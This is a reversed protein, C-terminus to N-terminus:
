PPRRMVFASTPRSLRRLRSTGAPGYPNGGYGLHMAQTLTLYCKDTLPTHVLKPANGQYEYSYDFTASVMSMTVHGDGPRLYYRLQSRWTWADLAGAQVSLLQDVVSVNHILDLVLSQIKLGLLPVETEHSTYGHLKSLLEKKLGELAARGRPIAEEAQQTFLVMEAICLVQSALGELDLQPARRTELISDVLTEKMGTALQQLWGEVAESVEVPQKLPVVEGELSCMGTIAKDGPAFQVQFIGAFLKKLHSQIVAPNKAQGLIELLDDDGIFYFRPFSQRKQELFDSLAKQCRELQDLIASLTEPLNSVRLLSFVRPDDAVGQMISTFEEDVRAFRPQENPMAGRAFIPELYVWKRQIPNLQSLVRDLLALKAEYHTVTDAFTGFFHSAKLSGLLAQFDCVQTTLDKWDKILATSRGGNSYSTTSFRADQAWATVEQVAERIAVEGTARANLEKLEAQNELLARTCGLFHSLRLDGLPVKPIGLTRFLSAWHEPQFADGRVHKLLPGLQSYGDLEAVLHSAIAGPPCDAARERWSAILDDFVYTRQRFSVWDEAALAELEGMFSEFFDCSAVYSEIDAKIDALGAFNPPPLDFHSCDRALDDSAEVVEKLEAQWEKIRDILAAMEAPQSTDLKKPKLETWRAAFKQVKLDVEGVRAEMSNRLHGMQDELRDNFADVSVELEEWRSLLPASSVGERQGVTRLLKNLEELKRFSEKQAGKSSNIAQWESKAAGVEGLSQPRKSLTAVSDDIFHELSKQLNLACRRAGHVLADSLRQHQNELAAKFPALSVHVCDVKETLPLKEAERRRQKLAKFNAEYHAAETLREEILEELGEDLEGLAVWHRYKAVVGELKLFLESARDYVVRLSSLNRDPLDRFVKLVKHKGAGGDEYYGLGKFATPVGIFKKIERYYESRLEELAPRLHLKHQRFELECRLHPLDLHLGELGLQYQHELAKFLQIDWHMRWGKMGSYHPQLKDVTARLAEVREKWKAQQRLLSVDMLLAVQEGM